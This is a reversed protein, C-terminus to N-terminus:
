REKLKNKKNLETALVKGTKEYVEKLKRHSNLVGDVDLLIINM